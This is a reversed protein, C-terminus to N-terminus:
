SEDQAEDIERGCYACYVHENDKINDKIFQHVQGCGTKYVKRKNRCTECISPMPSPWYEYFTQFFINQCFLCKRKIM